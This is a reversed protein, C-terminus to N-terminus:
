NADIVARARLILENSTPIVTDNKFNEDRKQISKRIENIENMPLQLVKDFNNKREIDVAILSDVTKNAQVYEPDYYTKTGFGGIVVGIILTIIFYLITKWNM